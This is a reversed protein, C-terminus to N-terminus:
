TLIEGKQKINHATQCSWPGVHADPVVVERLLNGRTRPVVPALERLDIRRHGVLRM